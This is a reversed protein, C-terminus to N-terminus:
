IVLASEARYLSSKLLSFPKQCSLVPSSLPLYPLLSAIYLVLETLVEKSELLVEKHELLVKRCQLPLSVKAFVEQTSHLSSLFPQSKHLFKVLRQVAHDFTSCTGVIM